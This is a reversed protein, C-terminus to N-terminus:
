FLSIVEILTTLDGGYLQGLDDHQVWEEVTKLTAEDLLTAERIALFLMVQGYQQFKDLKDYKAEVTAYLREGCIK